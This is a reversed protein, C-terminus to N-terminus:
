YKREIRRKRFLLIAGLCSVTLSPVGAIWLLAHSSNERGTPDMIHLGWMFDYIRWYRTRLALVEGSEADLYIHTGDAYAVQWSPRAKRLDIPAQAAAFRQISALTATGGFAAAALKRAEPESVVPLPKGDRGSFREVSKDPHTIVWVPQGLQGTLVLKSVLGVNAPIVLANANIPKAAARLHEGRVDEIPRLTMFLGSVLWLLLPLAAFWGLWIHWRAFRRM